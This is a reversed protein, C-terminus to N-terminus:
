VQEGNKIRKFSYTDFQKATYLSIDCIDKEFEETFPAVFYHDRLSRSFDIDLIKYLLNPDNLATISFYINMNLGVGKNKLNRKLESSILVKWCKNDLDQIVTLDADDVNQPVQYIVDNINFNSVHLEYRPKFELEKTKPNFEVKYNTLQEEGSLLTRVDNIDVSIFNKDANSLTNTVKLITGTDPEFCVYM